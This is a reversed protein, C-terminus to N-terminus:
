GLPLEVTWFSFGGWYHSSSPPRKHRRSVDYRKKATVIIVYEFLGKLYERNGGVIYQRSRYDLIVYAILKRERQTVQEGSWFLKEKHKEETEREGTRTVM